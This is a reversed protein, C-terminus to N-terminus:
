KISIQPPETGRRRQIQQEYKLLGRTQRGRAARGRPPPRPTRRRRGRAARACEVSTVQSRVSLTMFGYLPCPVGRREGRPVALGLPLRVITTRTAHTKDHHMNEHADMNKNMDDFRQENRSMQNVTDTLSVTVLLSSIQLVQACIHVHVYAHAHSHSRTCMAATHLATSIQTYPIYLPTLARASKSKRKNNTRSVEGGM